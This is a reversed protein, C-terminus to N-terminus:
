LGGDDWRMWYCCCFFPQHTHTHTHTHPDLKLVTLKLLYATYLATFLASGRPLRGEVARSQHGDALKIFLDLLALLIKVGLCVSAALRVSHRSVDCAGSSFALQCRLLRRVGADADVLRRSLM